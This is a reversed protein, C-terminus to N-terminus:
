TVKIDGAEMCTVDLYFYFSEDGYSPSEIVQMSGLGVHM